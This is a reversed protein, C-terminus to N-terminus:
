AQAQAAGTRLAAAHALADDVAALFDAFVFPKTLYRYFGAEIGQEIQRPYADSSLAIVQIAATAPAQALQRLIALGSMDPLNIDLLVLEPLHERALALGREGNTATLLTVDGRRGLLQEVLALNAANDEVYLLVHNPLRTDLSTPM